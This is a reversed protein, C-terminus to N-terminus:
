SSSLLVFFLPGEGAWCWCLNVIVIVGDTPSAVMSVAYYKRAAQRRRRPKKHSSGRSGGDSTRRGIKMEKGDDSRESLLTDPLSGHKGGFKLNRSRYTQRVSVGNFDTGTRRDAENTCASPSKSSNKHRSLVVM